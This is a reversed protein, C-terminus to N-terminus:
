MSIGMAALPSCDHKEKLREAYFACELERETDDNLRAKGYRTQATKEAYRRV